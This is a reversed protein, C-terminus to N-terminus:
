FTVLRDFNWIISYFDGKNRQFEMLKEDNKCITSNKVKKWHFSPSPLHTFGILKLSHIIGSFSTALRIQFMKGHDKAAEVNSDRLTKLWVYYSILM